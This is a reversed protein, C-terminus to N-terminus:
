KNTGIPKGITPCLMKPCTFSSAACGDQITALSMAAVVNKALASSASEPGVHLLPKDPARSWNIERDGPANNRHKPGGQVIRARLLIGISFPPHSGFLLLRQQGGRRHLGFPSSCLARSRRKQTQSAAPDVSRHAVGHQLQICALSADGHRQQITSAFRVRSSPSIARQRRQAKIPSSSRRIPSRCRHLQQNIHVSCSLQRKVAKKEISFHNAFILPRLHTAGKHLGM